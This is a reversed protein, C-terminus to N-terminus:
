QDEDGVKSVLTMAASALAKGGKALSPAAKTAAKVVSPLGKGLKKFLSYLGDLREKSPIMKVVRDAWKSVDDMDVRQFQRYMSKILPKADSMVTAAKEVLKPAGAKAVDTLVGEKEGTAKKQADRGMAEVLAQGMKSMNPDGSLLESAFAAATETKFAGKIVAPTGTTVSTWIGALTTSKPLLLETKRKLKGGVQRFWDMVGEVMNQHFADSDADWAAISRQEAGLASKIWASTTPAPSLHLAHAPSTVSSLLTSGLRTTLLSCGTDSAYSSCLARVVDADSFSSGIGAVATTEADLHAASFAAKFGRKTKCGAVRSSRGSERWFDDMLRGGATRRTSSATPPLDCEDGSDDGNQAAGISAILVHQMRLAVLCLRADTGRAMRSYTVKMRVRWVDLIGLQQGPHASLSLLLPQGDDAPSLLDVWGDALASVATVHVQGIVLTAEGRGTVSPGSVELAFVMVDTKAMSFAPVTQRVTGDTAIANRFYERSGDYHAAIHSQFHARSMRNGLVVVSSDDDQVWLPIRGSGHVLWARWGGTSM